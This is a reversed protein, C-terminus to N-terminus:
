VSARLGDHLVVAGAIRSAGIRTDVPKFQLHPLFDHRASRLGTPRTSCHHIPETRIIRSTARRAVMLLTVRSRNTRGLFKFLGLKGTAGKVLQSQANTARDHHRMASDVTRTTPVHMRPAFRPM